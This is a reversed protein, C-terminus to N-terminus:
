RGKIKVARKEIKTNGAADRAIITLSAKVKVHRTLAKRIAKLIRPPTKLNIKVVKGGAARVSVAKLSFVKAANPVSVSGGVTITGDEPMSARVVLNGPKQTSACKLASFSTVRDAPAHPRVLAQQPRSDPPIVVPLMNSFVDPCSLIFPCLPDYAAVHVYYFGPKLQETSTYSTAGPDLLDLLASNEVLFDGSNDTEQRTSAEIFNIEAGPALSWSAILHRSTQRVLNLVPAPPSPITFPKTDSLQSVCAPACGAPVAAVHV